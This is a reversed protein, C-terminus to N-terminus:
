DLGVIATDGITVKTAFVGFYEIIKAVTNTEPYVADAARLEKLARRAAVKIAEEETNGVGMVEYKLDVTAVYVVQKSM